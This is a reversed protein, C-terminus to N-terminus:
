PCRASRLQGDVVLHPLGTNTIIALRRSGTRDQWQGGVLHVGAIGAAPGATWDLRGAITDLRTGALAHAVATRDTPDGCTALAHAAVELLAHALGLPQLWAQGTQHQYDDALARPTTGDLSSPYPHRPTWYVLTAIDAAAEPAPATDRPHVTSPYALWRSCTILEPTWGCAKAQARFRGLDAPTAASTVVTVGAARFREIDPGFDRNGEPYGGPDYMRFGAAAAAALFGTPDDRRLFNGQQGANWLCGTPSTSGAKRWLDAFVRGIDGLGWCFHFGWSRAPDAAPSSELYVQWPLGTSLCPIGAAQCTGAVAPVLHTGAMTLVLVVRPDAALERAAQAAVAPDSRSDRWVLEVPRGPGAATRIPGAWRRGCFTVPDGLGALRGTRPLVVGIRVPEGM